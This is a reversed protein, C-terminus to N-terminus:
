KEQTDENRIEERVQMLLKGLYNKGIYKHRQADYVAGWYRDGWTNGEVLTEDGTNLLKQRLELDSFKIRLLDLMIDRKVEEWDSRLPVTKGLRKADKPTKYQFLIQKERDLTKQSQFACEVNSFLMGNYTFPKTCYFNSLFNYEGRFSTIM